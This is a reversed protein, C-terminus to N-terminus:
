RPGSFNLVLNAIALVTILSASLVLIGFKLFRPTPVMNCVRSDHRLRFPLPSSWFPDLMHRFVGLSPIHFQFIRFGSYIILMYGPIASVVRVPVMVADDLEYYEITYPGCEISHDTVLLKGRYALFRRAFTIAIVDEEDDTAITKCEYLIRSM